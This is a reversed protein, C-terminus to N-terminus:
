WRLWGGRVLELSGNQIGTTGHETRVTGNRGVHIRKSWKCSGDSWETTRTGKFRTSRIYRVVRTRRPGLGWQRRAMSNRVHRPVPTGRLSDLYWRSQWFM